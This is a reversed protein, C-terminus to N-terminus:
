GHTAGGKNQKNYKKRVIKRFDKFLTSKVKFGGDSSKITKSDELDKVEELIRKRELKRGKEFGEWYCSEEQFTPDSRSM